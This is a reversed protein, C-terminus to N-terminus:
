PPLFIQVSLQLSMSHCSQLFFLRFKCCHSRHPSDSLCSRSCPWPTGTYYSIGTGHLFSWHPPCGPMCSHHSLIHLKWNHIHTSSISPHPLTEGAGTKTQSSPVFFISFLDIPSWQVLWELSGRFALITDAIAEVIGQTKEGNCLLQFQFLIMQVNQTLEELEVFNQAVWGWHLLSLVEM